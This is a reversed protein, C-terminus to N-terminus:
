SGIHVYINFYEIFYNFILDLFMYIVEDATVLCSEGWLHLPPEIYLFILWNLWDVM